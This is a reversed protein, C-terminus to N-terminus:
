NNVTPNGVMNTNAELETQPIPLVFRDNPYSLYRINSNTNTSRVLAHNWRVIDFFQHGEFCLEKAREVELLRRLVTKDTETISIDSTQKNRSRAILTKLDSAALKPENNNLYAEARILYIESARLVFPDYHKDSESVNATVTYKLTVYSNKSGSELQFLKLRIDDSDTFLSMLTDSPVAVPSVPYYFKQLPCSKKLGNLRFIAENGATLNTFMAVYDSGYSLPVSALVKNAYIIADDWDEMYLYVRALLAQSALKSAHYADTMPTSGFDEESEKLDKIIQVYVQNVTNRPMNDDAGPTKTLAPIGLHSAEKTYNYPQAYVRCADFLCLARLFLAEAKIEQLEAQNNPYKAVLSPQYQLINNVNALAIYIKKWIYGVAGTEDTPDSIFNYEKVMDGGSTVTKLSVMNGAIEPYKYFESSYYNYMASYAGPLAARIGDMDSFFVPITTQGVPQVELFDSCGAMSVGLIITGLLNEVTKTLKFRIPKM